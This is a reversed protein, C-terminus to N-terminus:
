CASRTTPATPSWRWTARRTSALGSPQKGVTVTGALKPPNAKLDIVYVKNDPVHKLTDGDKIVDVSTPSWRSRTPRSRHRCQGAARRRLEEAAPQRRDDASRSQRSRPDGRTDKGPPSLIPKGEDHWLLKEDNGVIMFPQPTCAFKRRGSGSVNRRRDVFTAFTRSRM